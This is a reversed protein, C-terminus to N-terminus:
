GIRDLRSLSERRWALLLWGAVGALIFPAGLMTAVPPKEGVIVFTFLPNLVTELLLLLSARHAEIYQLAWSFMLYPLTFQVLGLVVILIFQRSEIQDVGSAIVAPALLLGSGVANMAVVVLPNVARLGRLFVTLAGYGMGSALALGVGSLGHSAYGSLIIGIGAMCVLLVWGESRGPRERLLLPSLLFVWVPSTYQLLIATAAHVKTTAAVFCYTMITFAIVSAIPWGISVNRLTDLRRLALPLFFVGGVLSRYCAISLGSVGGGEAGGAYLLKILPGNLSWLAACGVLAAIAFWKRGPDAAGNM